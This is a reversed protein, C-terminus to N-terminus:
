KLGKAKMVGIMVGFGVLMVGAMIWTIVANWQALGYLICGCGALLLLDDLYNLLFQRMVQSMVQSMNKLCM